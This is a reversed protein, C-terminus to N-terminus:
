MKSFNVPMDFGLLLLNALVIKARLLVHWGSQIMGPNVLNPLQAWLCPFRENVVESPQEDPDVQAARHVQALYRVLDRAIGLEVAGHLSQPTQQLTGNAHALPVAWSSFRQELALSLVSSNAQNEIPAFDAKMM